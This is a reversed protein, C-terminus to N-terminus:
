KPVVFPCWSQLECLWIPTVRCNSPKDPKNRKCEVCVTRNPFIKKIVHPLTPPLPALDHSVNMESKASKYDGILSSALAEIFNLQDPYKRKINPNTYKAFIYTNFISVQMFYFFLHRWWKKSKLSAMYYSVNQDCLDVGGM